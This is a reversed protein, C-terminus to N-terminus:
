KRIIELYLQRRRPSMKLIESESWGFAAALLAIEQLIHKAWHDIEIWLYNVIDFPAEWKHTCCPCSLNMQINAQPDENSMQEDLQELVEDPLDDVNYSNGDKKAEIICATLLKKRDPLHGDCFSIKSLDYSNPLRFQVTYQSYELSFDRAVTKAPSPYSLDSINTVWELREGCQPCTAINLLRSGFFWERLRLLRVDRDGISLLAPDGDLCAANLLSIAKEVHTGRNYLEWTNLLEIATPPKM